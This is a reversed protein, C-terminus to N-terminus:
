NFQTLFKLAEVFQMNYLKLVLEISDGKEECGFCKFQNEQFSFKTNNSGKCLPCTSRGRYHKIDLYNLIQKIEVHRVQSVDIYGTNFMKLIRESQKTGKHTIAWYKSFEPFEKIIQYLNAKKVLAKQSEIYKERTIQEDFLESFIEPIVKECDIIACSKIKFLQDYVEQASTKFPIM